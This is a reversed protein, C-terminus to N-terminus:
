EPESPLEGPARLLELESLPQWLQFLPFRTAFFMLSALLLGAFAFAIGVEQWGLYLEAARPYHSPYILTYREIWLGFLVVGAFAALIGPTRKPTAGLLGFFPIVFLCFFVLVALPTFPASLRHIVFSQERPLLGYWIVLYQSWFLYAWFVCFAFTLKGLDHLQPPQIASGLELGRRYVVTLLATAAIGGLFAAMFFYPG